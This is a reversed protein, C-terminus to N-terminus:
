QADLPIGWEFRLPGIPSFWRFGFGVSKRLGTTLSDLPRFCPDFQIPTSSHKSQLGSCYRNELNYANGMDYFVVGSIGVKKFLPFEIESNFIIQMNGGLPLTGLAQGVDGPPQTLLQPGLSRPAYGRIDYIGGVLYRESIPVGLPDTSTTVGLEANLHLVFPGWLERYHRVFGGWRLFKNQSGTYQSAIEAFVTDYWGGTPFLRNNRSDWSLSARVSSTAGGRFLNAVSTAAIPASTAGLNAIGGSGTTISVDELKYILFARAEYSLPYGWTLQGGYSNRFFTGFGRTQNYVDLGFTWQTDFLYPEVFRLLFLQRLSSLQAQVALTQGRGFLNNQSIQAQAIFNEVSSFGAGIQFTGTPRETVEVNVEVFEDSSGRKTSVVVNEFYGLATIRRKSTELNTNNFLEGESIKMERRIVKDRTKANGRINIREFYARKGRAVEYTLSIKRTPLDVKTLPLVNAYAYGQDQYYASLKERDEAIQTRSFTAGPRTRIKKLNDGASGILDGKFNVSGISFVPGEDIPISLYMYGKDRSLRLQPTGVKVNAYGRDWYHASVLLLDREFAEQSYVGSDNLFSLADQRRTQIALRLEDDPIARNGIFQVDRIKVKAKEDVNFWVDVEAENVPKIEYDVTALYFGKQVYQDAIKERNKKIKGIDVITDLELDIVENIKDLGLEQNGAVLVKRISPKEKVAFTLTLAGTPGVEAEVNVDAFFGMKWMARIDERVKSADYLTGPKSLLQVRIADDEVKRNGRFQVREIPRGQMEPGTARPAPNAPPTPAAPAAPPAPTSSPAPAPSPQATARAVFGAGIACSSIVIMLSRKM